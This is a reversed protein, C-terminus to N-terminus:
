RVSKVITMFVTYNGCSLDRKTRAGRCNYTGSKSVYEPGGKWGKYTKSQYECYIYNVDVGNITDGLRVSNVNVTERKCFGLSCKATAVHEINSVSKALGKTSQSLVPPTTLAFATALLALAKIM